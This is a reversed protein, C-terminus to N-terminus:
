AEGDDGPVSHRLVLLEQWLLATDTPCSLWKAELEETWPLLCTTSQQRVALRVLVSVSLLECLPLKTVLHPGDQACWSSPWHPLLPVKGCPRVYAKHHKRLIDAAALAQMCGSHYHASFPKWAMLASVVALMAEMDACVSVRPAMLAQQLKSM